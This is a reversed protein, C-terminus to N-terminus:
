PELEGWAFVFQNPTLPSAVRGQLVQLEGSSREDDGRKFRARVTLKGNADLQPDDTPALRLIAVFDGGKTTTSAARTHSRTPVDHWVGDRDLWRLHVETDLVPELRGLEEVLTGRLGTIGTTFPYDVRPPLEIATLPLQLQNGELKVEEYPLTRPDISIRELQRIDEDLWVFFGGANVIPKGQLGHAKVEVGQSVRDLTVADLLEIAFLVRRLAIKDKSEYVEFPWNM